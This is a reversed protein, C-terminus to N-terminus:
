TLRPWRPDSDKTAATTASRPRSAGIANSSRSRRATMPMNSTAWRRRAEHVSAQILSAWVDARGARTRMSRPSVTTSQCHARAELQGLSAHRNLLRLRLGSLLQLDPEHGHAHGRALHLRHRRLQREARGWQGTRRQPRVLLHVAAPRQLLGAQVRGAAQGHRPAWGRRRLLDAEAQGLSDTTELGGVCASSMCLVKGKEQDSAYLTQGSSTALVSMGGADRVTVTTGSASPGSATATNGAAGCGALVLLGVAAASLAAGSRFTRSCRSTPTRM